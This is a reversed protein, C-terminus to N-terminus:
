DDKEILSAMWLADRLARSQFEGSSHAIWQGVAIGAMLELASGFLLWIWWPM